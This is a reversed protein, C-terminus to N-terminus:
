GAPSLQRLAGRALTYIMQPERRGRVVIRDVESLISDRWMHDATAQGVLLSVDFIKCLSQLRSAVNVPDGLVSYDFRRESGLNGVVCEGTNVGVGIKLRPLDFADAFARRVKLNIDDMAAIMARAAELARRPHEPDEDPAGWFAMVCDGMYKDIAGGHDLVIDTMPGLVANTLQALRQPDSKLAEALSTFGRIDAFLVTVERTEGGLSLGEPDAMLRELVHPAVYHSLAQEIQRGRQQEAQLRAVVGCSRGAPCKAPAAACGARGRAPRPPAVRGQGAAFWGALRAVVGLQRSRLRRPGAQRPISDFDIASM